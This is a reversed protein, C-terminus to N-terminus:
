IRFNPTPPPIIKNGQLIHQYKKCCEKVFISDPSYLRYITNIWLKQIKGIFRVQIRFIKLNFILRNLRKNCKNIIDERTFNYWAALSAEFMRKVEPKNIIDNIIHNLSKDSINHWKKLCRSKLELEIEMRAENISPSSENGLQDWM